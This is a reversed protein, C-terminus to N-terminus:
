WFLRFCPDNLCFVETCSVLIRVDSFLDISVVTKNILLVLRNSVGNEDYSVLLTFNRNIFDTALLYTCSGRFDYYRKDFTVYHKGGMLM